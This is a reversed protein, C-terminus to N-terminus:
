LAQVESKNPHMLSMVEPFFFHSKRLSTKSSNKILIFCVLVLVGHVSFYKEGVIFYRIWFKSLLKSM